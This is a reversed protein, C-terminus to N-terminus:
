IVELLSVYPVSPNITDTNEYGGDDGSHIDCTETANSEKRELNVAFVMRALPGTFCNHASDYYYYYDGDGPGRPDTPIEGFYDVLYQKLVAEDTCNDGYPSISGDRGLELVTGRYCDPYGGNETAYLRLALGIQDIDSMRATDRADAKISSYSTMSIGIFITVITVVVLLEVLTFGRQLQYNMNSM